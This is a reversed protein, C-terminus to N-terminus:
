KDTYSVVVDLADLVVSTTATRKTDLKLAITNYGAKVLKPDFKIHFWASSPKATLPKVPGAVTLPRGNFKVKITDGKIMGALRLRLLTSVTKGAPTNAVIDEGVPLRATAYKKTAVTIPLRNPGVMVMKFTGLVNEQAPNDIAYIKDRGKLSEVSGLQSFREDPKTPFLNFLYIGDAGWYWRNMAAAWWARNDHRYRDYPKPPVLLAYVPVQYEHGLDVMDKLSSAVSMQIYDQGAIMIDMLDEELYARIDIGINMCSTVSLPARVTVLIPRGRKISERETVARIRRLMDTMMAVHRPEVPKGDLNPRFFLPHRIFDLEIGDIDYRRCVDEFINVIHDRVEAREFDSLTYWAKPNSHPYKKFDAKVGMIYEPHERKRRSLGWTAFSCEPNNMRYSWFVEINNKHAYDIVVALPDTGRKKLAILMDRMQKVYAGHGEEVWAGLVEGVKAQHSWFVGGGGSCYSITDVQTNAVQKVRCALWDEPKTGSVGHCGDDNYVIRRARNAAKKRLKKLDKKELKPREGEAMAPTDGALFCIACAGALLIIGTAAAIRNM